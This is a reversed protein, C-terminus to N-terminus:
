YRGAFPYLRRRLRHNLRYRTVLGLDERIVIRWATLEGLTAAISGAPYGTVKILEALTLWPSLYLSWVLTAGLGRLSRVFAIQEEYRDLLISNTTLQNKCQYFNYFTHELRDTFKQNSALMNEKYKGLQASTKGNRLLMPSSARIRCLHAKFLKRDALSELIIAGVENVLTRTMIKSLSAFQRCNHRNRAPLGRDM